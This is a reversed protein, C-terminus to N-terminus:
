ATLAGGVHGLHSVNSNDSLQAAIGLLEYAFYYIALTRAKVRLRYKMGFIGMVPPSLLLRSKSFSLAYYTVVAFCVGSAGVLPIPRHDFLIHIIGSSISSVFILAMTKFSGLKEETKDIFALIFFLNSFLHIIDAHVLSYTFFSLGNLKFLHKPDLQLKETLQPGMVFFLICLISFTGLAIPVSSDNSEEEVPIGFFSLTIKWPSVNNLEDIAVLRVDGKKKDELEKQAALYEKAYDISERREANPNIDLQSPLFESGCIGCKLKLYGEREKLRIECNPCKFSSAM